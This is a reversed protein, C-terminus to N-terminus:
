RVYLMYNLISSGGLVRGRPWRFMSKYFCRFDYFFIYCNISKGMACTKPPPISIDTWIFNLKSGVQQGGRGGERGGGAGRDPLGLGVSREAPAGGSSCTCTCTINCTSGVMGPVHALLPAAGGAEVLLM